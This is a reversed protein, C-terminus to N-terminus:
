TKNDGIKFLRQLKMVVIITTEDKTKVYARACVLPTMHAIQLRGRETLEIICVRAHSPYVITLFHSFYSSLHSAPPRRFLTDLYLQSLWTWVRDHRQDLSMGRTSPGKIHLIWRPLFHKHVHTYFLGVLIFLFFFTRLLISVSASQVDVKHRYCQAYYFNCCLIDRIENNCFCNLGRKKGWQVM